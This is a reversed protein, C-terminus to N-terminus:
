KIIVPEMGGEKDGKLVDTFLVESVKLFGLRNEKRTLLIGSRVLSKM